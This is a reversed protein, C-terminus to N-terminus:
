KTLSLRAQKGKGNRHFRCWKFRKSGGTVSNKGRSEKINKCNPFPCIAVNKKM